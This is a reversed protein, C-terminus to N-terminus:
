DIKAEIGFYIARGDGPYYLAGTGVGALNASINNDAAYKKNTLNRADAFWSWKKDIAQGAKFGVLTYGDRYVSNTNDMPAKRPVWEIKPGAYFSPKGNVEAGFRYLSEGRVIVPPFGPLQNNGYHVSDVFKFDSYLLAMRSDIQRDYLHSLGLEIGQHM